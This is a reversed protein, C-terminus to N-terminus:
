PLDPCTKRYPEDSGFTSAWEDPTLNRELRACAAQLLDDSRWPVLFATKDSSATAVAKGNPSFAVAYVSNEHSLRALEKGSAADWVRATKDWSATAVAKGDPSFAVANV